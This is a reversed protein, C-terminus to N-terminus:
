YLSYGFVKVLAETAVAIKAEKQSQGSGEVTIDKITVKGFYEDKIPGEVEISLPKEGTQIKLEQCLLTNYLVVVDQNPAMLKEGAHLRTVYDLAVASAMNRAEKVSMGKGYFYAKKKCVQIVAYHVRSPSDFVASNVYRVNGLKHEQMFTTLEKSAEERADLPLQRAIRQEFAEMTSPVVANPNVNKATEPPQQSQSQSANALEHRLCDVEQRLMRNEALLQSISLDTLYGSGLGPQIGTGPVGIRSKIPLRQGVAPKTLDEYDPIDSAFTMDMKPKKSSPAQLTLYHELLESADMSFKDRLIIVALKQKAEKKGVGSAKFTIGDSIFQAEFISKDNPLEGPVNNFTIDLKVGRMYCALASMPDNFVPNKSKPSKATPQQASQDLTGTMAVDRGVNVTSTTTDMLAGSSNDFVDQSFDPNAVNVQIMSVPPGAPRKNPLMGGPRVFTPTALKPIGYVVTPPPPRDGITGFSRHM